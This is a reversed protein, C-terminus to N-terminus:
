LRHSQTYNTAILMYSSTTCFVPVIASHYRIHIDVRAVSYHSDGREFYSFAIM